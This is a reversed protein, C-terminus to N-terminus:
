RSRLELLFEDIVARVSSSDLTNMFLVSASLDSSLIEKARTVISDVSEELYCLDSQGKFKLRKYLLDSKTFILVMNPKKAKFYKLDKMFNRLLAEQYGSADFDALSILFFCLDFIMGASQFTSSDALETFSIKNAKGVRFFITRNRPNPNQLLLRQVSECGFREHNKWLIDLLDLLTCHEVLAIEYALPLTFLLITNNKLEELNVNQARITSKLPVLYLECKEKEEEGLRQEIQVILDHLERQMFKCARTVLKVQDVVAGKDLRAEDENLIQDMFNTKGASRCGSVLVNIMEKGNLNGM